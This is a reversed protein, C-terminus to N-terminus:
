NESCNGNKELKDILSTKEKIIEELSFIKNEYKKIKIKM